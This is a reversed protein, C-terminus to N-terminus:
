EFGDGFLPAVAKWRALLDRFALATNQAASVGTHSTQNVGHCGDCARVEGSQVSIWYRERVVPTGAADTLQWSMARRAPVVAAVSGDAFVPVSGAPAGSERPNFALSDPDHLIRALVRRGDTPNATGGIGRIQDGQFFQMHAVDYVQGGNAISSTGGPVDVRLNYPQQEDADDRTTVNRMVMVGLGQESLWARFAAENVAELAYANQEPTQSAFSTDPPVPRARVEVPQLEWLPGSYSVLEDPDWFQIPKAIGAGATLEQGALPAMSGASGGIVRLRFKYRPDPANRTGLNGAIGQEVAHSAIIRGDSLVIPDRYHGTHNPGPETGNTARHTLYTVVVADPNTSPPADLRVLQGSGHTGFEPADVGIYRGAQTPFEEIQLMNLISNPNARPPAGPNFESLNPDNNFSRDFYSHLEHRGLHNLTEEESGDQRVVWPFFHNLRHGNITSGNAAVRPEPFVEDRNSTAAAGASEDSFNFTTTNAGENQQDRQLHDWRTFVIRGFSDVLPTFSGSPSHQLLILEQTAPNLRWLGTPTATSEYEDHQPYLHRQGNRPRDSVFVIRGQSDYTPQVNNYDTPQGPVLTISVTQGSGFGTVEYLQFYYDGYQYQQPSAGIAMSFVARTGSWHVAPDRVSISAPGQLGSAVGFGAEATLNRLTGNGYRIWLDGGRGTLVPDARHNAFVAGITAFDGAVPYQTVFLIPNTTTVQARAEGPQLAIFALALASAIPLRMSSEQLVLVTPKLM